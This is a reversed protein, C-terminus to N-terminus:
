FRDADSRACSLAHGSKLSYIRSAFIVALGLIVFKIRWRMMGVTSRFTNELNSLAMVAGILCVINVMRGTLGFSVNLERHREPSILEVLGLRFAIALGIPFAFMLALFVAEM